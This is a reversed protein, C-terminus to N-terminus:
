PHGSPSILYLCSPPLPPNDSMIEAVKQVDREVRGSIEPLRCLVMNLLEDDRTCQDKERRRPSSRTLEKQLGLSSKPCRESEGSKCGM